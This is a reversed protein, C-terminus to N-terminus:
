RWPIDTGTGRFPCRAGRLALIGSWPRAFDRSSECEVCEVASRLYFNGLVVRKKLVGFGRRAKVGYVRRGARPVAECTLRGDPAIVRSWELSVAPASEKRSTRTNARVSSRYRDRRPRERTNVDFVRLSRVVRSTKAGRRAGARRLRTRRARARASRALDRDRRVRTRVREGRFRFVGRGGVAAANGRSSRSRARPRTGKAGQGIAAGASSGTNPARALCVKAREQVGGDVSGEAVERLVEAVPPESLLLSGSAFLALVFTIAKAFFALTTPARAFTRAGRARESRRTSAFPM